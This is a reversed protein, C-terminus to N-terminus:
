LLEPKYIERFSKLNTRTQWYKNIDEEGKSRSLSPEDIRWNPKIIDISSIPHDKKVNDWVTIVTDIKKNLYDYISNSTGNAIEKMLSIVSPRASNPHNEASYIEFDKNKMFKLYREAIQPRYNNGNCIFLM